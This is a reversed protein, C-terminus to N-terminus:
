ITQDDMATSSVTQLLAQVCENWHEEVSDLVALSTQDARSIHATSVDEERHLLQEFIDSALPEIYLLM